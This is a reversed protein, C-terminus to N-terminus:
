KLKFKWVGDEKVYQNTETDESDDGYICKIKVIATEGNESITEELIDFSKMEKKENELSKKITTVFIPIFLEKTVGKSEM